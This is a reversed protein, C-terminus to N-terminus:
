REGGRYIEEYLDFQNIEVFRAFSMGDERALTDLDEITLSGYEGVMGRYLEAARDITIPIM